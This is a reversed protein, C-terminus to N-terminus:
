GATRRRPSSSPRGLQPAVAVALGDLLMPEALSADDPPLRGLFDQGAHLTCAPSRESTPHSAPGSCGDGCQLVARVQIEHGVLGVLGLLRRSRGRGPFVARVRTAPSRGSRAQWPTCYSTRRAASRHRQPKLRGLRHEDDKASGASDASGMNGDGAVTLLKSKRGDLAQPLAVNAQSAVHVAASAQFGALVRELSPRVPRNAQVIATVQRGARSTAPGHSRLKGGPQACRLLDRELLSIEQLSWASGPTFYKEPM